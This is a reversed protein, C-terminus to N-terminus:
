GEFGVLRVLQDCARPRAHSIESGLKVLRARTLPHTRSNLVEGIDFKSHSAHATTCVLQRETFVQKTENFLNLLDNWDGHLSM